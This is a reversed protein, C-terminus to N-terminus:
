LTTKKTEKKKEWVIKLQGNKQLLADKLVDHTLQYGRNDSNWIYQVYDTAQEAFAEDEPQQPAFEVVKEGGAFMEMLDPMVSEIVDQVDSSVVQSRGDIENGFPESYYAQMANRREDSIDGGIYNAAQQIHGTVIAKLDADDMKPM